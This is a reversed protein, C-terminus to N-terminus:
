ALRKIVLLRKQPKEAVSNPPGSDIRRKLGSGELAAEAFGRRVRAKRLFSANQPGVWLANRSPSRQRYFEPVRPEPLPCLQLRVFSLKRGQRHAVLKRTRTRCASATLKLRQFISNDIIRPRASAVAGLAAAETEPVARFELPASKWDFPLEPLPVVCHTTLLQGDANRIEFRHRAAGNGSLPAM